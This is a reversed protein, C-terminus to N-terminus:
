EIAHAEGNDKGGFRYVLYIFAPLIFISGLLLAVGLTQIAAPSSGELLSLSGGNKFLIIQPFHPYTVDALLTSVMLGAFFRASRVKGRNIMAWVLLLSIVSIAVATLGTVDGFVWSTLPIDEFSAAVFVGICTFRDM